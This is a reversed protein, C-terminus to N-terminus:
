VTRENLTDDYAPWVTVILKEPTSSEERWVLKTMSSAATFTAQGWRWRVEASLVAGRRWWGVGAGPPRESHQTGFRNAHGHMPTCSQATDLTRVDRGAPSRTPMAKEPPRSVETATAQIRSFPATGQM